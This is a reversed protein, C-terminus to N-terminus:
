GSMWRSYVEDLANLLTTKGAGTGGSILFSVRAEVAAALFEVMDAHISHSDTLDEVRLPRKGFRRISLTPGDLAM